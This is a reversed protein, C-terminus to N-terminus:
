RIATPGNFTDQSEGALGATGITMLAKGDPSFKFVQHGKGDKGQADTVWVNGTRDVFLGHAQVFMASGFSALLKGTPAFKLIPPDARHFAWVNGQADTSVSVVPGWQMGAPLQAWGEVLSYPNDQARATGGGIALVGVVLLARTLRTRSTHSIM